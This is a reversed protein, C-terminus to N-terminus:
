PHAPLRRLWARVENARYYGVESFEELCHEGLARAEDIRGQLAAIQALGYRAGVEVEYPKEPIQELIEHFAAEAAVIDAMQLALEGMELLLSSLLPRHGMQRALELGEQFSARAQLLQQQKRLMRGIELGLFVMRERSGTKRALSLGEQFYTEALAFDGQETALAGLRALSSILQDDLHAQRSRSMAERVYREALTTDAQYAAVAGLSNLLACISLESHLQRALELSEYLFTNALAYKGQDIALTGLGQLSQCVSMMDNLQRALRLGEQFYAETRAIDGQRGALGGLRLLCLCIQQTDANQRALQLSEQYAVETEQYKGLFLAIQGSALLLSLLAGRDDSLRALSRAHELLPEALQYLARDRLFPVFALVGQLYKESLQHETAFQLACLINHTDQELMLDDLRQSALLDIYYRAMREEADKDHSQTCAYDAITQHLSYRDSGIWEILGADVLRDLCHIPKNTVALAAEETFSEPKAPFVALAYLMQRSEDDLGAESLGIIAQLSLASDPSLRFDRQVGVQPQALQIREKAQRLRNLTTQLRREGKQSTQVLLHHGLLTLALPLGGTVQVLTSLTASEVKELVPVLSTLLQISEKSELERIHFAQTGAFSLAVDPIRTTLLYACNPGGIMCSLADDIAWADDIVILIQRTGIRQHLWDIWSEKDRLGAQDNGSIELLNGWRSLLALQNPHPGVGAWLIGDKFTAQLVPDNALQVALTTKGVGPLGHLALQVLGKQACLRERLQDLLADRGILERANSLPLPIAPDYIESSHERLVPLLGLEEATKEFIMALKARYFPSVSTVGHEWRNVMFPHPAGILDAVERQTWGREERAKRLLLNPKPSMLKKGPM